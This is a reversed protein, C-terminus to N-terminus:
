GPIMQRLRNGSSYHKVGRRAHTRTPYGSHYGSMDVSGLAAIALESTMWHDICPPVIGRRHWRGPWIIMTRPALVNDRQRFGQMWASKYLLAQTQKPPDINGASKIRSVFEHREPQCVRNIVRCESVQIGEVNEMGSRGDICQNTFPHIHPVDIVVM